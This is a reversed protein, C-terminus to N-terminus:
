RLQGISYLPSLKERELYTSLAEPDPQHATKTETAALGGTIFMSDIDEGMAGAIDTHIGDGIALIAQDPVGHGLAALRRRALDYIPPHPKGFYLSQGGMETYLKALSGACWERVGGRDVVLDPNACLLKLGKQKAYLFQPRNVDPDAFPDFPGCCVIGEAQELPVRTIVRPSDIVDLPEFFEVDREEDGMFWVKNGVAGLYMASRASDGSSAITDWADDPVGFQALQVAVGARPKPSNTLLVVIGGGARYTQLAAVADPLARVGDHVCGWLDVFLAKYRSSVDALSNIIQTM